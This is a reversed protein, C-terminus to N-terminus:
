PDASCRSSGLRLRWAELDLSVADFSEWRAYGRDYTHAAASGTKATGGSAGAAGPAAAPAAPAKVSQQWRLVEKVAQQQEMVSHRARFAADMSAASMARVEGGTHEAAVAAWQIASSGAKASM